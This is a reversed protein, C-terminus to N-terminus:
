VREAVRQEFHQFRQEIDGGTGFMVKRVDDEISELIPDLAGITSEFINIRQHLVQLVREEITGAISFNFIQVPSRQGIRDLRGIRQEIKRPNWPLDYNFMVHVFQLNRGEGAAEIAIMIQKSERFDDVVKDKEAAEM